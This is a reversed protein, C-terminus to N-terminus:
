TMDSFPDLGLTSSAPVISGVDDVDQPALARARMDLPLATPDAPRARAEKGETGRAGGEAEAEWEIRMRDVTASPTENRRNGTKGTEPSIDPRRAGSFAPGSALNGVKLGLRVRHPHVPSPNRDGTTPRLLTMTVEAAEEGAESAAQDAEGETEHSPTM